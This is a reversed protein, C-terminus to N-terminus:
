LSNFGRCLPRLIICLHFNVMNIDSIPPFETWLMAATKVGTVSPLTSRVGSLWPGCRIITFLRRCFHNCRVEIVIYSADSVDM